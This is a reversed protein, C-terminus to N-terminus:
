AATATRAWLKAQIRRRLRKLATRTIRVSIVAYEALPMGILRCLLARRRSGPHGRLGLARANKLAAVGIQHSGHAMAGRAVSYLERAFILELGPQREAAVQALRTLCEATSRWTAPDVRRSRRLPDDYNCWVAVGDHSITVKAGALLGRLAIEVDDMRLVRPDWGGIENLFARRWFQGGTQVYAGDLWARVLDPNPMISACGTRASRKGDPTEIVTPGLVLDAGRAVAADVMGSILAGELYDDADLFQIFESDSLALGKNRAHAPGGNPGSELILRDGFGKVIELSRDSSGDDVVILELNPYDQDLVSQIARAIWREANWCPIIVAVSPFASAARARSSERWGRDNEGGM